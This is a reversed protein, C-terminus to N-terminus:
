IPNLGREVALVANQMATRQKTRITKAVACPVDSHPIHSEASPILEVTCVDPRSRLYSNFQFKTVDINYLLSCACILFFVIIFHYTHYIVNM